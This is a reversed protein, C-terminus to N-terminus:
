NNLFEYINESRYLSSYHTWILIYRFIYLDAFGIRLNLFKAYLWFSLLCYLVPYFSLTICNCVAFDEFIYQASCCCYWMPMPWKYKVYDLCLTVYMITDLPQMDVFRTFFSYWICVCTPGKLRELKLLVLPRRVLQNSKHGLCNCWNTEIKCEWIWVGKCVFTILMIKIKVSGIM